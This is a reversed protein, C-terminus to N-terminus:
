YHLARGVLEAVETSSARFYRATTEISTHGLLAQM